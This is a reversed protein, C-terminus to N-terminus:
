GLIDDIIASWQEFTRSGVFESGILEGNENLFYTTPVSYISDLKTDNLEKCPLVNQYKVGTRAIIDKADEIKEPFNEGSNYDYTDILVGIIKVGKDEYAESLKQLDPMENICPSCFTGWINVMTVKNGKFIDETVKKGDVTESTFTGFLAKGNDSQSASSDGNKGCATFLTLLAVATLLLAIIKKKM